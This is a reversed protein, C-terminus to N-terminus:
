FQSFDQKRKELFATFAEEVEQSNLRERFVESEEVIGKEVNAADHMPVIPQM